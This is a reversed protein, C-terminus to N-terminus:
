GCCELCSASCKSSVLGLQHNFWGRQFIHTLIPEDEGFNPTFLCFTHFCCGSDKISGGGGHVGVSVWANCRLSDGHQCQGTAVTVAQGTNGALGFGGTPHM